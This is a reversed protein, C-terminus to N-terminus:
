AGALIRLDELSGAVFFSDIISVSAEKDLDIGNVLVGKNGVANAIVGMVEIVPATAIVMPHENAVKEVIQWDETSLNEETHITLHPVIGLVNDRIERDFGNM